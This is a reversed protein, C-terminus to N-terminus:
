KRVDARAESAVKAMLRDHEADTVTEAEDILMIPIDDRVAYRRKLRPNYLADEDEFYYCRARTRRARSSRSCCRISPWRGQLTDATRSSRWCRPSTRTASTATPRKSTSVCCRSPTRDAAPQVVLRRPRRHPRRAPGARRGRLARRGARDRAPPDAVPHQDRGVDAYREFPKRLESLPSGPRRCSSSCSCRRRHDGLRRPLQRPLLLAGLARRRLRRRDRGDGAQHVLARRPASRRRRRARPRGRAGGELLHLNYIITAGPQKALIASQSSPPPRRARCARSQTTSSSCATPTATSRWASTPASARRCAAALTASTRRSSRTPPITRFAHRRAPSCCISISPCSRSCERSSSAAWGTARHRRRGEDAPARRHRHVLPRPRRLRLRAPRGRDDRRWAAAARTATPACARRTPRGAIELLGSEVGVPSRRRSLPVAQDAACAPTTRDRHLADSQRMSVTRRRLLIMDTSRLGTQVADIGAAYAGEAFAAQSSPARDRAHRAAILVLPARPSAACAKCHGIARVTTADLQDPVRRGQSTTPGQLHRYAGPTM